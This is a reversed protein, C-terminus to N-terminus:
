DAGVALDAKAREVLAACRSQLVARDVPKTLYDDAGLTEALRRGLPGGRLALAVIPLDGVGHGHRLEELRM